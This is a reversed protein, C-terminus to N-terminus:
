TSRSGRASTAHASRWEVLWERLARVGVLSVTHAPALFHPTERDQPLRKEPAAGNARNEIMGVVAVRAARLAAVLRLSEDRVLPEDLTVVVVGARASDHLLAELSRTRKSFALLEQAADGLGAVEKYKLMLRMLRHTWELALAPMELLRLLHGTPAPDVIIQRYRGQDLTEGLSALAYLEDVGPPALALLDRLIARDHGIDLGRGILAEFLADIRAQYRDRLGAFARAADMQWAFLAPVGDVPVAGARAWGDDVIGLADGISPAPDTSVLLVPQTDDRSAAAIALACSVSTKGVGGKGGTITLTRLISIPDETRARPAGGLLLSPEVGKTGRLGKGGGRVRRTAGVRSELRRIGALARDIESLGRPPPEIRELEFCPAESTLAALARRAASTTETHSAPVANVVLAAIGIGLDRLAGAYRVTEAVVVPEPRAVLVAAARSRDTLATRLSAMTARMEDLFDDARDRRYRRTLAGVMFRHKAQMAELLAVMAEFTEPLALLRLTHGTPATDVVLRSTGEGGDRFREGASAVLEALELVAFIEDAGPFTADVLGEIDDVDLYTGRDVITVITERWRELFARRARRADLQRAALGPSGPVERLEGDALEVGLAGALAGAPDTSLLLARLHTRAFGSAIGIACTTKGVGGKGVVLTLPPLLALLEDIVGHKPATRPGRKGTM